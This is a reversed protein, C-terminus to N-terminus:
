KTEKAFFLAAKKLIEKLQEIPTSLLVVKDEYLIGIEEADKKKLKTYKISAIDEQFVLAFIKIQPMRKVMQTLAAKRRNAEEIGNFIYM